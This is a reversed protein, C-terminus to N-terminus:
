LPSKQTNQEALWSPATKATQIIASRYSAM